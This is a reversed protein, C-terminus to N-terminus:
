ITFTFVPPKWKDQVRYLYPNQASFGGYKRLKSSKQQLKNEFLKYKKAMESIKQDNEGFRSISHNWNKWIHESFVKGDIFFM